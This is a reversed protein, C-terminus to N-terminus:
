MTLLPPSLSMTVTKYSAVKKSFFMPVCTAKDRLPSKKEELKLESGKGGELVSVDEQNEQTSLTQGKESGDGPERGQTISRAQEGGHAEVAEVKVLTLSILYTTRRPLTGTQSM